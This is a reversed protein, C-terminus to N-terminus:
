TTVATSWRRDQTPPILGIVSSISSMKQSPSPMMLDRKAESRQKPSPIKIQDTLHHSTLPVAVSVRAKEGLRRRALPLSSMGSFYSRRLCAGPRTSLWSLALM